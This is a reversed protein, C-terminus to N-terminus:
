FCHYFCFWYDESPNHDIMVWFPMFVEALHFLHVKLMQWFTMRPLQCTWLPPPLKLVKTEGCLFHKRWGYGRKGRLPAADELSSLWLSQTSSSPGEFLRTTLQLVKHEGQWGHCAGRAVSSLELYSHKIFDTQPALLSTSVLAILRCFLSQHTSEKLETIGCFLPGQPSWLNILM